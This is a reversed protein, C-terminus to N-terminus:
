NICMWKFYARKAYWHVREAYWHLLSQPIIIKKEIFLTADM